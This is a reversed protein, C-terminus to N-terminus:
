QHDHSALKVGDPALVRVAYFAKSTAITRLIDPFRYGGDRFRTTLYEILESDAPDFKRATSYGYLRSVLCSIVAPSDRLAKGLDVADSVAIGDLAGSTDLDVGGETERFQGAGDFSELVLGLPDTLKHCGACVPNTSHAALRERQTRFVGAPDEFLTFDVNPPPDPVHQCLMTERLGRGRQTASARGPHSYKALFGVQTILGGRASGEPFEYHVWQNQKAPVSLGYVAALDRTMSTSRTVFLDRYDGKKVLLHDVITRLLQEQAQSVVKSSFVPYIIPDKALVDFGELVLMDSFFARVGHQLRPSVLMREVQRNLGERTNLEGAEAASLLASDPAANWLFFSLRSAKSYDDLRWDGPRAPDPEITENIYLFQRSILMRALAVSLGYHFDGAGGVPAGATEVASELENQTLPRRYILRGVNGLYERACDDDRLDAAKPQCSILYGRYKASVVQRAIARASEEIPELAGSTMVSTTAGIAVLGDSRYVPAFRVKTVIDEGFIAEITQLYQSQSILRMALSAGQTAPEDIVSSQQVGQTCAAPLVILLAVAIIKKLGFLIRM